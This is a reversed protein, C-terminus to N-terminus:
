LSVGLTVLLSRPAGAATHRVPTRSRPAEPDWQSAFNYELAAYQADLLNYLEVGLEVPGWLLGLSLDVLGVAASKQGYPLPRPSLYSVGLGARGFLERAWLARLLRPRAGLDVRAVIPPLFPLSQGREFPPQPEEASPPPPELLAADVFTLSAAGILWPEPRVLAHTVFGLRRTRGIRELRGEEAEFAVDDSLETYYGAAAFEAREDWALRAGLDFSRVKTFPADEGDDLTRAQPSRYGEGYAARLSLFPLVQAEASARPGVALGAASRRFGVLSGDQPRTPPVFNGLRDDIAYSLADARVGVRLRLERLVNAALDGFMGVDTGRVSADVRRDWTQSRAADLLNQAQAIDDVRGSLGLEGHLKAHAWPEAEATRYRGLLGLSLTTNQQEILDGRGAVNALTQSRQTFGTFNTQSRFDDWSLWLGIEGNEGRAGRYEAFGGALLRQALANQARATPHAYVDYFGVRGAAVDDARVVGALDARASGVIGLVRYRLKGEGFRAQAIASTAEGSRQAGFGDTRTHQAAGFTEAPEDQPAWVVSQRFTDFSGYTTRSHVGRERVGLDLSLTGAVAFDGQRPDYVGETVHLEDVVDGILFGLDAYGQGHIHSPLNIPLGGVRLEIDQGHQADFGRLMYQHAVALGEGRGLYLGPTARLVEAGEQRPAAELVERKLEFSSAGRATERPAREGHVVVDIVGEPAAPQAPEAAASPPPTAPAGAASPPPELQVEPLRFSFPVRIRSVVPEGGRRAPAFRWSRVAVVAAQDLEDGLSELVSAEQVEGERGVTVLLVVTGERREELARSPYAADTRSLVEPPTVEAPSGTAPPEPAPESGQAHARASLALSAAAACPLLLARLM